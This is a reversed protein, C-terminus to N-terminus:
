ERYFRIERITVKQLPTGSTTGAAKIKNLIDMGNVLRGFISLKGDIWPASVFTMFFQSSGGQGKDVMALIGPGKFKLDPHFENPIFLGSNGTGTGTRDGGMACYTDIISHFFTGNYFPERKWLGDKPDKFAKTGSALGIFNAVTKPAKDEELLFTMEGMTTDFIAYLKGEGVPGEQSAECRTASKDLKMEGIQYNPIMDQVYDRIKQSSDPFSVFGSAPVKVNKYFLPAEGAKPTTRPDGDYYEVMFVVKPCIIPFDELNAFKINIKQRTFNVGDVIDDTVAFAPHIQVEEGQASLFSLFFFLLPTIFIKLRKM